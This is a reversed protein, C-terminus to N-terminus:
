RNGGRDGKQRGTQSSSWLAPSSRRSCGWASALSFNLQQLGTRYVWTDIIDAVSYVEIHYM